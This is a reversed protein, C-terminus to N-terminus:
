GSSNTAVESNLVIHQIELLLPLSRATLRRGSGPPGSAWFALAIYTPKNLPTLLAFIMGFTGNGMDDVRTFSGDHNTLRARFRHIPIGPSTLEYSCTVGLGM